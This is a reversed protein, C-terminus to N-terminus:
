AQQLEKVPSYWRTYGHNLDFAIERNEGCVLILNGVIGCSRSM